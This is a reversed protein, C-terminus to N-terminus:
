AQNVAIARLKAAFTHATAPRESRVSSLVLGAFGTVAAASGSGASSRGSSGVRQQLIGHTVEEIGGGAFPHVGSVMEYLVVCLSWVDDAEEASRGSLVEPSVYRLTGGAIVGDQPEHALGFDLLKPSGESTFGINSPKIDGHLYGADHIAALADALVITMSVAEPGPVLGRRLRDALTGGALYEVVLFPRGRWSEIGYIQAVSPHTMDAMVWAEPKLGRLGFVSLSTLTKVAVNRELRVDRALYVAGMGGSGLRRTLRFKGALLKPVEAEVHGSGCNCGPPEGAATVYGCESCEQAPVTEPGGTDMSHALRLRGIALGAAAALAELFPLDVVRVIQDDFRRGVVLVGLLGGGPGPIPVIADAATEVVWAAEEPPLLEFLSAKDNPHVRLTRGVTELMHVIASTRLLPRVKADPASYAEAHNEPDTAALLVSASGCGRQVARTVTRSVTKIRGVQALATAAAALSHRQDTREPYAWADIRRLIKERGLVVLLVIGFATFLAQALPDALVAGVAREPRSALLWGLAAAPVVASAWLLGPHTLLRRCWAQVVERPHPVRAALVSYWVLVAGPFRMLALVLIAPSWQYNVIWHGPSFAEALDYAAWMGVYLLFGVSFLVVRRVEEAPATHARLVVVVVAGLSLLSMACNLVDLLLVVPIGAHGSQALVLVAAAMVWVACGIAASIPIMRLALDDFRSRRLVKPCEKAFAWLFSPVFLFSPLYLCFFLKATTPMELLFAPFMAPPPMELFFAPLMLQPAHTAKLLCCVGLLWSRRERRGAFLLLCANAAHGVFTTALFVAIDGHARRYTDWYWPLLILAAAVEVAAVAIVAQAARRVFVSAYIAGGTAPVGTATRDKFAGALARLNDLSRRTAPTAQRECREWQVEQNRTLADAVDFLLDVRNDRGDPMGDTRNM